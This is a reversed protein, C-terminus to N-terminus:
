GPKKIGTVIYGIEGENLAPRPEEDPSLIGVELATFTANPATLKLSEGKEVRGGFLRCCIIVGRHDSYSFDYILAQLKDGSSRPPPIRTVIADLLETVGAGTKGSTALIEREDCDLLLAIESKVDD